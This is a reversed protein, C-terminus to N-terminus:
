HLNWLRTWSNRKDREEGFEVLRAESPSLGLKHLASENPSSEYLKSLSLLIRKNLDWFEASHFHPLYGLLLTHAASPLSGSVIATRLEPLVFALLRWSAPSSEDIAARLLVAQMNIREPQRADDRIQSIRRSLEDATKVLDSPYRLIALGAAMEATSSLVELWPGELILNQRRPFWQLWSQDLSGSLFAQIAYRFAVLPRAAVIRDEANGLDRRLMEAIVQETVHDPIDGGLIKLLINNTLPRLTEADVLESRALLVEAVISPPLDAAIITSKDARNIIAGTIADNWPALEERHADYYQAVKGIQSATLEELRQGVQSPTPTEPLSESTLLELLHVAPIAMILRPSHSGIGIIDRKLVAGESPDPLSEFVISTAESSMEDSNTSLQFLEVLM